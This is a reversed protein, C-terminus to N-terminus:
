ASWCYRRFIDEVDVNEGVRVPIKFPVLDMFTEFHLEDLQHVIEEFDQVLIGGELELEVALDHRDHIVQFDQPFSVGQVVLTGLFLCSLPDRSEYPLALKM